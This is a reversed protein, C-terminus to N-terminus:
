AIKGFYHNLLVVGVIIGAFLLLMLFDAARM